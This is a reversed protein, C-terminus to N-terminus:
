CSREGNYLYLKIDTQGNMPERQQFLLIADFETYSGPINKLNHDEKEVKMHIIVVVKKEKGNKIKELCM